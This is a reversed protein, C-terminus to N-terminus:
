DESVEIGPIEAEAKAKDKLFRVQAGIKVENPTMYSRPIRDADLVRFKWHTTSPVGAVAQINPRVTVPNDKVAQVKAEADAAAQEIAAEAYAGAERLMKAAERKGIDGRKLAANIEKVKKDKEIKALREREAKDEAAKKEAAEIRERNQKDALEQARRKDETEYIKVSAKLADDIAKAKGEHNKYINSLFDSARKIVEWYSDLNFGAAKAVSRVELQLLKAQGSQEATTIVRFQEARVALADLKATEVNVKEIASEVGELNPRPVLEVTPKVIETAM